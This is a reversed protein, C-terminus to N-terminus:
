EYKVEVSQASEFEELEAGEVFTILRVKQVKFITGYKISDVTYTIYFTGIEDSYLKGDSDKKLNTDTIAKESIDKGFEVINVGEDSYKEGLTLTIEDKGVIEFCDNKTFIKVGFWGGVAGVILLLFALGFTAPSMKKLTRKAKNQQSKKPQKIKINLEAKKSTKSATKRTAL